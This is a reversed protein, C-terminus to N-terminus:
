LRCMITMIDEACRLRAHLDMTIPITRLMDKLQNKLMQESDSHEIKEFDGEIPNMFKEPKKLNM